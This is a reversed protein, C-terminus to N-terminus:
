AKRSIKINQPMPIDGKEIVVISDYFRVSAIESMDAIISANNHYWGHMDDVLNKALEIGTGSRRYGGEYFGPWYSTHLDEIVYLGGTKLLPFLTELSIRQHNAVHSGDDLIIDPAGIEDIVNKLFGRDAQSGIFARNPKDVCDACAPDIDLGSIHAKEGFYKRWLEISGGKFIGIELFNVDTNRYHAFEREYIHPYHLWKYVIRGKHSYILREFDTTALNELRSAESPDLEQDALPFYPNPDKGQIKRVKRNIKAWIDRLDM